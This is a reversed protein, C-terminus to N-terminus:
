CHARHPCPHPISLRSVTQESIETTYINGGHSIELYCYSTVLCAISFLHKCDAKPLWIILFPLM